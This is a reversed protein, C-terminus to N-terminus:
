FCFVLSSLVKYSLAVIYCALENNCRITNNSYEISTDKEIFVDSVTKSAVKVKKLKIMETFFQKQDKQYSDLNMEPEEYNSDSQEGRKQTFLMRDHEYIMKKAKERILSKSVIEM